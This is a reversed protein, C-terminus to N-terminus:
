FNFTGQYTNENDERRSLLIIKEGPIRRVEKLVGEVVEESKDSRLVRM